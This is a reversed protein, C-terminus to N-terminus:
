RNFREIASIKNMTDGLKKKNRVRTLMGFSLNRARSSTKPDEAVTAALSVARTFLFRM